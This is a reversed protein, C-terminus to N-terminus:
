VKHRVSPYALCEWCYTNMNESDTGVSTLEYIKLVKSKSLGVSQMWGDLRLVTLLSFISIITISTQINICFRKLKNDTSQVKTKM